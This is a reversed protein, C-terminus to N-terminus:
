KLMEWNEEPILPAFPDDFREVGGGLTRRVERISAKKAPQADIEMDAVVIRVRQGEAFPLGLLVLKGERVIADDVYVM